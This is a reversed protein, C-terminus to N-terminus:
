RSLVAHTLHAWPMATSDFSQCPWFGLSEQCLPRHSIESSLLGFCQEGTWSVLGSLCQFCSERSFLSRILHFFCLTAKHNQVSQLGAAQRVSDSFKVKNCVHLITKDQKSTSLAQLCFNPKAKEILQQQLQAEPDPKGNIQMLDAYHAPM